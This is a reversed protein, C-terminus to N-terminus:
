MVVGVDVTSVNETVSVSFHHLYNLSQLTRLLSLRTTLSLYWPPAPWWPWSQCWGARCQCWCVSALTLLPSKWNDNGADASHQDTIIGGWYNGTDQHPHHDSSLALTLGPRLDRTKPWDLLTPSLFQDGSWCCDAGAGRGEGARCVKCKLHSSQLCSWKIVKFATANCMSCVQHHSCCCHWHNTILIWYKLCNKM